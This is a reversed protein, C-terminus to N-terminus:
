MIINIIDSIWDLVESPMECVKFSEIQHKMSQDGQTGIATDYYAAKSKGKDIKSICEVLDVQGYADDEVTSIGAIKKM